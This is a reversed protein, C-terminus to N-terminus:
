SFRSGQDMLIGYAKVRQKGSYLLGDRYEATHLLGAEREVAYLLCASSPPLPQLKEMVSGLGGSGVKEPDGHRKRKM